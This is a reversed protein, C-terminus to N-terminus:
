IDLVYTAIFANDINLAFGVVQFGGHALIAKILEAKYDPDKHYKVIHM